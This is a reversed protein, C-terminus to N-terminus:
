ASDFNDRPDNQDLDGGGGGDDSEDEPPPTADEDNTQNEDEGVVADVTNEEVNAGDEDAPPSWSFEDLYPNSSSVPGQM